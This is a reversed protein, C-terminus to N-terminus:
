SYYTFLSLRKHINSAIRIVKRPEEGPLDSSKFYIKDASNLPSIFGYDGFVSDIIGQELQMGSDLMEQIQKQRLKEKKTKTVM